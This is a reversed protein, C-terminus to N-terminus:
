RKLPYRITSIIDKILSKLSSIKTIFSEDEKNKNVRRKCQEQLILAIQDMNETQPNCRKIQIGCPSQTLSSTSPTSESTSNLLKECQRIKHINLLDSLHKMTTQGREIQIQDKEAGM